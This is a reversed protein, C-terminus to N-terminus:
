TSCLSEGSNAALLAWGSHAPCRCHHMSCWSLSTIPSASKRSVILYEELERNQLAAQNGSKKDPALSQVLEKADIALRNEVDGLVCARCNDYQMSIRELLKRHVSGVDCARAFRGLPEPQKLCQFLVPMFM